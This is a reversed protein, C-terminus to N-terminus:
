PVERLLKGRMTFRDFSYVHEQPSNRCGGVFRDPWAKGGDQIAVSGGCIGCIAQYRVIKLMSYEPNKPDAVKEIQTSPENFPLYHDELLMMKRSALIDMPRFTFYWILPGFFFVALIVQLHRGSVPGPAIHFMLLMSIISIFFLILQLAVSAVFLWWRSEGKQITGNGYRFRGSLNLNIKSQDIREYTIKEDFPYNGEPDSDSLERNIDEAVLHFMTMSSGGRGTTQEPRLIKSRGADSAMQKYTVIGQDFFKLARDSIKRRKNQQSTDELRDTISPDIIEKRSWARKRAPESAANISKQCLTLLFELEEGRSGYIASQLWSEMIKLDEILEM